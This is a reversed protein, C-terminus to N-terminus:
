RNDRKFSEVRVDRGGQVGVSGGSVTQNQQPSGSRPAPVFTGLFVVAAGILGAWAEPKRDQYVWFGAAAVGVAALWRIVQKLAM